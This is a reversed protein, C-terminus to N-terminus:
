EDAKLVAIIEGKVVKATGLLQDNRDVDSIKGINSIDTIATHESLSLYKVDNYSCITINEIMYSTDSQLKGIDDEWLVLRSSNSADAILCDQKMLKM